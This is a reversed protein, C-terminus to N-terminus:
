YILDQIKKTPKYGRVLKKLIKIALLLDNKQLANSLGEIEKQLQQLSIFEEHSKFIKPHKTPEPSNGILLEEYLKEGPRLGITKIEIDGDPNKNDKLSLGSAKIM